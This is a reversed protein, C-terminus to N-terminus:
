FSGFKFHLNGSLGTLDSNTYEEGQFKYDVGSVFRYGIGAALRFWKTINLEVNVSPEVQFFWDMGFRNVRENDYYDHYNMDMIQYSLNGSGINVLATAHIAKNSALIYELEFGLQTFMLTPHENSLPDLYTSEKNGTVQAYAGFGLSVTHNIIWGGRGGVMLAPSGNVQTFKLVPAGFGGHELNGWDFLYEQDNEDSGAFATLSSIMMLAMIAAIKKM